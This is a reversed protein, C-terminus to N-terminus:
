CMPQAPPPLGPPQEICRNPFADHRYQLANNRGPSVGLRTEKPLICRPLVQVLLRHICRSTAAEYARQQTSHPLHLHATAAPAITAALLSTFTDPNAPRIFTRTPAVSPIIAAQGAVAHAIREPRRFHSERRLDPLGLCVCPRVRLQRRRCRQGPRAECGAVVVVGGLVVAVSYVRGCGHADWELSQQGIGNHGAEEGEAGHRDSLELLDLVSSLPRSPADICPVPLHHFAVASQRAEHTSLCVLGNSRGAELEVVWPPALLSEQLRMYNEPVSVVCCTSSCRAL